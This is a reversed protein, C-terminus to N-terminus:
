YYKKSGCDGLDDDTKFEILSGQQKVLWDKLKEKTVLDKSPLTQGYHPCM